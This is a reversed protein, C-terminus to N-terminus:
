DDRGPPKVLSPGGNAIAASRRIPSPRRGHGWNRVRRAPVGMAVRTAHRVASRVPSGARAAPPGCPRTRARASRADAPAGPAPAARARPGGRHGTRGRKPGQSAADPRPPRPQVHVAGPSREAALLNRGRRARSPGAAAARQIRRQQQAPRPVTSTARVAVPCAPRKVSPRRCPLSAPPMGSPPRRCAAREVARSWRGTAARRGDQGAVQPERAPSATASARREAERSKSPPKRSARSPWAQLRVALRGSAGCGSRHGSRPCGPPIGTPRGHSPGPRPPPGARRTRGRQASRGASSRAPGRAPRRPRTESRRRVRHRARLAPRRGTSRSGPCAWLPPALLRQRVWPHGRGARAQSM